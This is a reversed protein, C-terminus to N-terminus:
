HQESNREVSIVLGYNAFINTAEGYGQTPEFITLLRSKGFESFTHCLVRNLEHKTQGSPKIAALGPQVKGYTNAFDQLEQFHKKSAGLVMRIAWLKGKFEEFSKLQEYALRRAEKKRLEQRTKGYMLVDKDLENARNRLLLDPTNDCFKELEDIPVKLETAVKLLPLGEAFLRRLLKLKGRIESQWDSAEAAKSLIDIITRIRQKDEVINVFFYDQLSEVVSLTLTRPFM